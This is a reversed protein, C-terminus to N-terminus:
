IQQPITINTQFSSFLRFLPPPHGKIFFQSELNIHAGKLLGCDFQRFKFNFDDLEGVAHGSISTFLLGLKGLTAWFTSVDTEVQFTIDNLFSYFEGSM